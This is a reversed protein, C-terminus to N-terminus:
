KKKYVQISQYVELTKPNDIEEIKFKYNKYIKDKM